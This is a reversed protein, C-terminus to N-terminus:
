PIRPAGEGDPVESRGALLLGTVDDHSTHVDVQKKETHESEGGYLALAHAVLLGLFVPIVLIGLAVGGDVPDGPNLGSLTDRAVLYYNGTFITAGVLALMVIPNVLWGLHASFGASVWLLAGAMLAVAMGLQLLEITHANVIYWQIPNSSLPIQQGSGSGGTLPNTLKSLSYLGFELAMAAEVVAIGWRVSRVVRYASALSPAAPVPANVESLADELLLKDLGLNALAVM